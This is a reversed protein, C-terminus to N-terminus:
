GQEQLFAALSKKSIFGERNKDISLFLNQAKEIQSQDTYIRALYKM